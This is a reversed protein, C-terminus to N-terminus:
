SMDYPPVTVQFVGDFLFGGHGGRDHRLVRASSGAARLQAQLLTLPM